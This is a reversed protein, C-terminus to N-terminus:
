INRSCGNTMTLATVNRPRSWRYTDLAARQARRPSPQHQRGAPLRQAHRWLEAVDKHADAFGEDAHDSQSQAQKIEDRENRLNAALSTVRAQLDRVLTSSPTVRVAGCCSPATTTRSSSAALSTPSRGCSRSRTPSAKRHQWSTVGEIRTDAGTVSGFVDSLGARLGELAWAIQPRAAQGRLGHVAHLGGPSQRPPAGSCRRTGM